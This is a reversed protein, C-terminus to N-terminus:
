SSATATSTLRWRAPEAHGDPRHRVSGEGRVASARVVGGPRRGLSPYYPGTYYPAPLILPGNVIVPPVQGPRSLGWDGEVVTYSADYGNIIVPIGPRGPVVLVPARDQASAGLGGCLVGLALLAAIRM